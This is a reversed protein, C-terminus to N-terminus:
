HAFFLFRPDAPGSCGRTVTTQWTNVTTSESRTHDNLPSHLLTHALCLASTNRWPIADPSLKGLTVEVTMLLDYVQRWNLGSTVTM